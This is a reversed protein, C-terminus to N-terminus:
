SNYYTNCLLAGGQYRSLKALSGHSLSSTSSLSTTMLLRSSSFTTQNQFSWALSYILSSVRHFFQVSCNTFWSCVYFFVNSIIILKDGPVAACGTSSVQGHQRGDAGQAAAREREGRPVEAESERSCDACVECSAYRLWLPTPFVAARLVLPLHGRDEPGSQSYFQFKLHMLSSSLVLRSSLRALYFCVHKSFINQGPCWELM